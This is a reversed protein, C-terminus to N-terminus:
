GAFVSQPLQHLPLVRFLRDLFSYEEKRFPFVMFQAQKEQVVQQLALADFDGVQTGIHRHRIDLIDYFYDARIYGKDVEGAGTGVEIKFFQDMFNGRLHIIQWCDDGAVGSM